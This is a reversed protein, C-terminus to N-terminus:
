LQRAWVLGGLRQNGPDPCFEVVKCGTYGSPGGFMRRQRLWNSSAAEPTTTPTLAADHIVLRSGM